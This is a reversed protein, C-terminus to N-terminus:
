RVDSPDWDTHLNEHWSNMMEMDKASIVFDFVEANEAIREQRQSKPIPIVGTQISWRIMMQAPTRQYKKAIELLKDDRLMYGNTLPSYAEVMINNKRCFELLESLNLFPHLEIQNVMPVIRGNDIIEQLHPFYYNSVGIARCLGEDYLHELARWTEERLIPVPWHILYLDIYDVQLKKRSREFAKLTSEYGQETNWVKTTLLIEERNIESERIVKGIDEENGYYSGSDILRYGIELAYDLASKLREGKLSYTGLGIPPLSFEKTLSIRSSISETM